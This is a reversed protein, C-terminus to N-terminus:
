KGKILYEKLLKGVNLTSVVKEITRAPIYGCLGIQLLDFLRTIMANDPMDILLNPTTYGFFYAGVAFSLCLMILPRWVAALWYGSSVESSIITAIAQEKNAASTNSDSLAKIGTNMLDTQSQKVGFFGTIGSGILGLVGSLATLWM